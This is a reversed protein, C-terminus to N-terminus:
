EHARSRASRVKYLTMCKRGYMIAFGILLILVTASLVSRDWLGVSSDCVAPIWAEVVYEMIKPESAVLYPAGRTCRLIVTSNRGETGDRYASVFGGDTAVHDLEPVHTGLSYHPNKEEGRSQWVEEGVCVRYTWGGAQVEHCHKPRKRHVAIELLRSGGHGGDQTTFQMAGSHHGWRHTGFIQPSDEPRGWSGIPNARAGM